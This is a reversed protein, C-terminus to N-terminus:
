TPTLPSPMARSACRPELLDKNLKIAMALNPPAATTPKPKKQLAPNELVDLLLAACPV